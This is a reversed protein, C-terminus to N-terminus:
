KEKVVVTQGDVFVYDLSMAKCIISLIEQSNDDSVRFSGYFQRDIDENFKIDLNYQIAVENLVRQVSAGDYSYHGTRWDKQDADFGVVDIREADSISCKGPTLSESGTACEVKVKGTYCAVELQNSRNFVNFSTGLVSVSGNKTQVRFDSGKRVDFFAEGTLELKREESWSAKDYEITSNANLTVISGDPLEVQSHDGAFTIHKVMEGQPMLVFWLLLAISAAAAVPVALRRWFSIVKTDESSDSLDIRKQLQDWAQAKSQSRPVKWNNIIENFKDM